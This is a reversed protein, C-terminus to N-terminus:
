FQIFFLDLEFVDDDYNEDDVIICMSVIEVDRLETCSRLSSFSSLVSSVFPKNPICRRRSSRRTIPNEEIACVPSRKVVDLDGNHICCDGDVADDDGDDNDDDAFSLLSTVQRRKKVRARRFEDTM